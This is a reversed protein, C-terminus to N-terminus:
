FWKPNIVVKDGLIERLKAAHAHPKEFNIESSTKWSIRAPNQGMPTFQM